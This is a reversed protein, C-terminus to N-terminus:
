DKIQTKIKKIREELNKLEQLKEKNKRIRKIKKKKTEENEIKETLIQLLLVKRYTSRLLKSEIHEESMKNEIENLQKNLFQERESDTQFQNIVKDLNKATLINNKNIQEKEKHSGYIEELYKEINSGHKELMTNVEKKETDSLNEKQTENLKALSLVARRRIHHNTDNVLRKLINISKVLRNSDEFDGVLWAATVRMDQDNSNAMERTIIFAKDPHYRHLSLVANGKVRNNEDKLFPKLINEATDKNLNDEEMLEADIIEVGKARVRPHSDTIMSEISIKNKTNSLPTNIKHELKNSDDRKLRAKGKGRTLAKQRDLMTDMLKKQFLAMKKLTNKQHLIILTVGGAILVTFIAVYYFPSGREEELLEHLGAIREDSQRIINKLEAFTEEDERQRARELHERRFAAVRREVERRIEAERDAVRGPPEPRLRDNVSRILEAIADNEPEIERGEKLIELAAEYQGSDYNYRATEVIMQLYFDRNKESDPNMNYATRIRDLAAEYDGDIYCSTAQKRYRGSIDAETPSPFFIALIMGFLLLIKM